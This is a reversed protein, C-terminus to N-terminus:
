RGGVYDIEYTAHTLAVDDIVEIKVRSYTYALTIKDVAGAALVTEDVEPGDLGTYYARTYVRYRLANAGHTNGIVIIKSGLARTDWDLATVYANTTIGSVTAEEGPAHSVISASLPNAISIGATGSGGAM